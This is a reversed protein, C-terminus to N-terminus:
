LSTSDSKKPNWSQDRGKAIPFGLEEMTRRQERILLGLVRDECYVQEFITEARALLAPASQFARQDGMRILRTNRELDAVLTTYFQDTQRHIFFSELRKLPYYISNTQDYPANQVNQFVQFTYGRIVKGQIMNQDSCNFDIIVHSSTALRQAVGPRLQLSANYYIGHHAQLPELFGGRLTMLRNFSNLRLSGDEKNRILGLANQSDTMLVRFEEDSQITRELYRELSKTFDLQHEIRFVQMQSPWVIGELCSGAGPNNQAFRDVMLKVHKDLDQKNESWHQFTLADSFFANFHAGSLAEEINSFLSLHQCFALTTPHGQAKASDLYKLLHSVKIM